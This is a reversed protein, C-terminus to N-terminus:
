FRRCPLPRHGEPRASNGCNRRGAVFCSYITRSKGLRAAAALDGRKKSADSVRWRQGVRFSYRSTGSDMGRRAVAEGCVGQVARAAIWHRGAPLNIRRSNGEQDVREGIGSSQVQCRSWRTTGLPHEHGEVRMMSGSKYRRRRLRTERHVLHKVVTRQWEKTWRQLCVPTLPSTNFLWMGEPNV